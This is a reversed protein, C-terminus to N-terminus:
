VRSWTLKTQHSNASPSLDVFDVVVKTRSGDGTVLDLPTM